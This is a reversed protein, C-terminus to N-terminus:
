GKVKIHPFPKGSLLLELYNKLISYNKKSADSFEWDEPDALNEALYEIAKDYKPFYAFTFLASVYNKKTM